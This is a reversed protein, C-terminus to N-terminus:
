ALEQTHRGSGCRYQLLVEEYVASVGAAMSRDSFLTTQREHAIRRLRTTNAEGEFLMRLARSLEVVDGPQILLGDEGDRIVDTVGDVRSAVVPTGVAMAELVSMPMGESLLSPLVFVDMQQLERDVESRFGVWDVCNELDLRASLRQVQQQYDLSEFNGVARLRVPLGQRRLDALAELVTEIGKRPRFLAVLGIVWEERRTKEVPLSRAPVGNPVLSIKQDAYGHGRLYRSITPSVSILCAARRLSRREVWASLRRSLRNGIERHTQTHVHHVLPVRALSAALSGIMATRPGHTHVIAYKQQQVLSALRFASRLDLKSRMFLEHVVASRCERMAAFCGSKLCAFSVDYGFEPLRAALHDQVREAGAYHEGNIVHLVRTM